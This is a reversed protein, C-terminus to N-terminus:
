DKKRKRPPLWASVRQGHQQKIGRLENIRNSPQQKEQLFREKREPPSFEM